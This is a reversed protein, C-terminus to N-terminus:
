GTMKGIQYMPLLIAIIYCITIGLIIFLAVVNIMFTVSKKKLREKLILILIGTIFIYPGFSLAIRTIYPLLINSEKYLQLLSARSSISYITLGILVIIDIILVIISGIALGRSKKDEM